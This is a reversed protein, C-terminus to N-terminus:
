LALREREDRMYAAFADGSLGSPEVGLAALRKKIEADQGVATLEAVLKALVARNLGAPAIWGFASIL